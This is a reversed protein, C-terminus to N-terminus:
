GYNREGALYSIVDPLSEDVEECKKVYRSDPSKMDPICIVKISGNVAAEMGAESDELVLGENNKIRLKECAKLFVDPAPKGHKVFADFLQDIHHDKM